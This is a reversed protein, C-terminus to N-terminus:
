SPHANTKSSGQGSKQSQVGLVYGALTRLLGIVPSIQTNSFGTVVLFVAADTVESVQRVLRDNSENPRVPEGTEPFPPRRRPLNNTTDSRRADKVRALIRLITSVSM